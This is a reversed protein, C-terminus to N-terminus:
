STVSEPSVPEAPKLRTQPGGALAFDDQSGYGYGYGYGYGSGARGNFRNLVAGIVPTGSVELHERARELADWKTTGATSVLVAVDCLTAVLVPDTVALAPPTDFIVIDFEERMEEILERLRQSGLLEAPSPVAKGAPLVYLNDVEDDFEEWTVRLRRRFAEWDPPTNRFLLESLGNQRPIGLQKHATPKRLDADVLLTRHGAQAMSVALNMSTTSKGEGPESSTLLMVQVRTDPLSFRISTRIHRYAETASSLPHLVAALTSRVTHSDIEVTERGGFNKKIMEAMNPVVGLVSFGHQRLDDPTRLRRDVTRKLFVFGVGAMLGLLMGVVMNLLPRPRVPEEPVDAQRIVEVYGLESEEAVRAEQLKEILFLYTQENAERQRELQALEIAQRPIDRLRAEYRQEQAQLAALRAELGQILVQKEIVQRKLQTVYTLASGNQPDIGGVALVEDVYQDALRNVERRLEEIRTTIVDLEPARAENGRLTPDAAYYDSAQLELEAIRQQLTGIENEVGSAIRQVLGPEVQEVQSEISRLASREVELEVRAEEIAADIAAIQSVANQGESDLAVAGERTMFERLRDESASLEERRKEAQEEIFARSSTVSARSTEQSRRGYEQAYINAILAAEQPDTSQAVITVLDARENVPAFRVRHELIERGAEGVTPRPEEEEVEFLPGAPAEEMLRAGVREALPVSQRLIEVENYLTRSSGGVSLIDELSSPGLVSTQSQTDVLVVSSAEYVPERTFTYAAVLALVVVFVAAILRWDRRLIAFLDALSIEEENGSGPPATGLAAATANV